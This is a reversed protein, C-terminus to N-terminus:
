VHTFSFIVWHKLGYMFTTLGVKRTHCGVVLSRSPPLANPFSHLVILEIHYHRHTLAGTAAKCFFSSFFFFVLSLAQIMPLVFVYANQGFPYVALVCLCDILSLSRRCTMWSQQTSMLPHGPMGSQTERGGQHESLWQGEPLSNGRHHGIVTHTSPECRQYHIPSNSYSYPTGYSSTQDGLRIQRMEINM